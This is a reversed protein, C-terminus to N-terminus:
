YTKITKSIKSLKLLQFQHFRTVFVFVLFFAESFGEFAALLPVDPTVVDPQGIVLEL